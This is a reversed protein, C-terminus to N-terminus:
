RCASPRRFAADLRRGLGACYFLFASSFSVSYSRLPSRVAARIGALFADHCHCFRSRGTVVPRFQDRLHTGNAREM